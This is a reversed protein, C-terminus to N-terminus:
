IFKDVNVLASINAISIIYINLFIGARFAPINKQSINIAIEGSQIKKAKDRM